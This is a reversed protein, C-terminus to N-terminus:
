DKEASPITPVTEKEKDAKKVSKKRGFYMSKLRRLKELKSNDEADREENTLEHFHNSVVSAVSYVSAAGSMGRPTKQLVRLM